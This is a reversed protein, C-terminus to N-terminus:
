EIENSLDEINSFMHKITLIETSVHGMGPRENPSTMSCSLGIKVLPIICNQLMRTQGVVDQLLIPDVVKDINNPFARYVFEHLSTGDSFEEYTPHHETIMELLLVGFSYVDGKTSIEKSLGYEPPIYGISGKLCGLSTSGHDVRPRTYLFRALGFDAVHATMDLDLLINSPKLDCHIIPSECQNHLYDLASAVDLAINIRQSLTLVRRQGNGHAKPHIWMDLNGNMMYPFVIAKFDAGTPDVSSCLTITRVLNRHRVNKLAECEAIFSRHAGYVELNFIKIAVQDEQPKLNGKYVKGFSGSGLLNASSFMDTAKAIDEYTINKMYHNPQQMHPKAPMRKRWIHLAVCFLSIIVIAAIPILTKAVKIVFSKQKKNRDNMASCLPMDETPVIACLHDNGEMSVASSNGFIGGSPAEGDFKNFSLNLYHLYKLSTLFEPINGSLNNQSIDLEKIGVLQALSQPISGTFFNNQMEVYELLVCKGLTSPISGFLMNNSVSFKNLNILSGVEEPIGGSLYNHSLDFKQSLSSIKFITRPISGNLSNHALNLIQLQNCWGMSEPIRGSLNNADLKLDTLQVLNGITGPIEGSLRNQAIALVVLNELNGITPPISGTFHNLDMFLTKLNKLNGMEPPIPGSIKNERLWLVELSSSLKGISSPLEGQFNNGALYLRTLKSCNSLSSIFGWNGADLINYSVDLEELNPLPGFFPIFGTLRNSALYLWKLHYANLLSAPIPGDFKNSSLILIQINPLTYGIDSPLRGVLSNNGVAIATLSTINFVSSPIPGSLSNLNMNLLRLASLHGLSEPISGILKNRTLRLDLLSSLNGLSAPITGSLFNGGLHLHKIPPSTATIPPISGAFNNEQLCIAILSSTNFLAAPLQGSLSNRMLRLVQISSSNALSEPIGGTLANRGLDVYTISLSSGLSPPINGSLKNNALLLIKLEPHSSGFTSPISGQLQNNSLNIEELHMCQSLSPPIEGGLSNNSLDLIRLHSCSSLESPINGELSNMSLNLNSLKSLLGLEFPVVGHFSNNSLQLSTLSSLNAICPSLLGTIGESGLDLAIVRRPSTASCTVGHWSCFDLSANSWTSFVKAPGDLQSKFCLLAQQDNQSEECSTLPLNTMFSLLYLLWVFSQSLSALFAM